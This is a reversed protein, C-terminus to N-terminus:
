NTISVTQINYRKTSKIKTLLSIYFTVNFAATATIATSRMNALFNGGILVVVLVVM